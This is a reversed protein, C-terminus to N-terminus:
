VSSTGTALPVAVVGYGTWVCFMPPLLTCHMAIGGALKGQTIAMASTLVWPMASCILAGMLKPEVVVVEEVVVVVVAVVVVVDPELVMPSGTPTTTVPGDEVLLVLVVVGVVVVVLAALLVLPAPDPAEPDDGVVVLVAGVDGLAALPVSAKV